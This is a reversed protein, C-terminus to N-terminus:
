RAANALRFRTVVPEAEEVVPSRVGGNLAISIGVVGAISFLDSYLSGVICFFMIVKVVFSALFFRNFHEYEPDGFRYNTLLLRYGAILFWVFGIVGFIGFPIIISLPGNHYDGALMSGAAGESGKNMGRALMDLEGADIGYGKGLILYRPVQPLVAKWMEIRWDTSDKSSLEAEIDLNLPLFTLSRQMSLPLKNAFPIAIAALLIAVLIVAPLLRSRMLGELYFMIACLLVVGIVMSRFGGLMTTGILFIFFLVRWNKRSELMGTIGYRALLWSILAMSTVALGGLRVINFNNEPGTLAAMGSTDAPFILFIFYFSPGVVAALNGVAASLSGLYFLNVYLNAKRPPIRQATLAFFGVVGSLLLLYRKGGIGESGLVNLGFGGTLKATALVVVTLFILPRAVSPVSIFKLNRNMVYTLMSIGFSVFALMFAMTPKGPLFFLGANANWVLILWPYHWRLFLPVTMLALLLGVSVYTSSDTPTALLYGVLIALPLCIGYIILSRFLSFANTM